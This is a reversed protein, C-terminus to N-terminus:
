TNKMIISQIIDATNECADCCKEMRTFMNNWALVYIPDDCHNMYLDRISGIYLRDAEEEYTNVDILLAELARSKKFNRFDGMVVRLANTSKEIIGAMELAAPHMEQVNFMYMRQVVDEIYDVVDDLKQALMIIDEREIPTIFESALHTFIQHNEMDAAHELEHMIDLQERVSTADFERIIKVLMAAERCSFEALREFADFYDFRDRRAM